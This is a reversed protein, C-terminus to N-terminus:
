LGLDERIKEWPVTGEKEIEELAARADAVDKRYELRELVMQLLNLDEVSIIAAVKKGHWTVVTREKAYQARKIIDSFQNRAKEASITTM